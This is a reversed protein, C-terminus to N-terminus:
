NLELQTDNIVEGELVAATTVIDEGRPRMLIVGQTARGLTPVNKIPLKIVQAARTTILLELSDQNVLRAAVIHGTKATVNAIKVGQGGRGQLPFQTIITQKGLGKEMVVLITPKPNLNEMGSSIVECGVVYDDPSSLKMGIVGMTDRGTPRIDQESFRISKGQHSILLLHDDGSTALAKVLQDGDQLKIAILGNTRINMYDSLSTKKVTGQITTLLVFKSKDAFDTNSLTLISQVTETTEINLL